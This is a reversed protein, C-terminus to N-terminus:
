QVIYDYPDVPSNNVRLEFHLHPGTSFGTNGVAGIIDGKTVVDGVKVYFNDLHGYYTSMDNEHKVIILNGYGGDNYEAYIVEGNLAVLVDDGISGGIDIGKHFSNWREGYSSTLYGGRTPKNLFAVGYEYPNKTGRYIIRSVDSKVVDEKVVRTSIIDDNQSIIEIVQKTLGNNGEIIKSEGLYMEETPITITSPTIEIDREQLYKINFKIEDDNKALEYIIDAIEEESNLDELSIREKNLKIVGEIDFSLILNNSIHNENSYREEMIIKINEFSDELRIYGLSRENAIIEYGSVTGTIIDYVNSFLNIKTKRKNNVENSTASAGIANINLILITILISLLTVKVINRSHSETNM